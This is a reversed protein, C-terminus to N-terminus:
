DLRDQVTRLLETWSRIFKEVGERELKAAVEEIDIEVAALADIVDRAGALAHTISDGDTTGHDAFALLTNEPMTNVVESAVLESVYLTDPYTPDKVGTSAWLPRQRNAGVIRTFRQHAFSRVYTEYALRANAVAARGKLSRAERTGIRELRADIESDIRSVFFSAVSHIKGVDLGAATAQELGTLFADIVQVYRNRGFILTVNVSIGESLAATVAALGEDTAPVKILLNPRGVKSWLTRAAALTAETDFALTPPVEISVRGDLGGTREYVDTLADCAARVDTTTLETVIQPVDLGARALDRLQAEYRNGDALAAAFITPNTTVGVVRSCEILAALSGSEILERSLDDL